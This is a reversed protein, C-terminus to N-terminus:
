FKDTERSGSRDRLYETPPSPLHCIQSTHQSVTAKVQHEASLPRWFHDGRKGKIADGSQEAGPAGGASPSRKGGGPAGGAGVGPQAAWGGLRLCRARHRAPARSKESGLAGAGDPTLVQPMQSGSSSQARASPSWVHPRADLGVSQGWICCEPGSHELHRGFVVLGGAESDVLGDHSVQPRPEAARSEPGPTYEGWGVRSQRAALRPLKPTPRQQHTCHM